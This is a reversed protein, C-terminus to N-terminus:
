KKSNRSDRNVFSLRGGQLTAMKATPPPQPQVRLSLSVALVGLIRKLKDVLIKSRSPRCRAPHLRHGRDQAPMIAYLVSFPYQILIAPQTNSNPCSCESQCDCIRHAGARSSWRESTVQLQSNLVSQVSLVQMQLQLLGLVRGTLTESSLTPLRQETSAM